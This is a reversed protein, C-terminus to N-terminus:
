QVAPTGVRRLRDLINSKLKPTAPSGTANVAPPAEDIPESVAPAHDVTETPVEEAEDAADDGPQAYTEKQVVTTAPPPPGAPVQRRAPPTLTQTPRAPPQPKPQPLEAEGVPDDVPPKPVVSPKRQPLAPRTEPEDPEEFGTAEDPLASSKVPPKAPAAESVQKDLWAKAYKDTVIGNTVNNKADAYAKNFAEGSLFTFKPHIISKQAIEWISEIEAETKAWPSAEEIQLDYKIERSYWFDNGRIPDLFSAPNNARTKRKYQVILQEFQLRRAHFEHAIYCQPPEYRTNESGVTREFVFCYCLWCVDAELKEAAVKVALNKHTSYKLALSCFPCDANPNGGHATSTLKTCGYTRNNVWHNAYRAYWTGKDDFQYPLFRLLVAEGKEIKVKEMRAPRQSKIFNLEDDLEDIVPNNVDEIDRPM